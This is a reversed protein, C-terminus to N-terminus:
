SNIPNIILDVKVHNKRVGNMEIVVPIFFIVLVMKILSRGIGYIVFCGEMLVSLIPVIPPWHPGKARELQLTFGLFVRAQLHMEKM